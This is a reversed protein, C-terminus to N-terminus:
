LRKKAPYLRQAVPSRQVETPFSPTSRSLHFLNASLTAAIAVLGGHVLDFRCGFAPLVDLARLAQPTSFTLEKDLIHIPHLVTDQLRTTM